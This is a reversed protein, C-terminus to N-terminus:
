AEQRFTEKEQELAALESKQPHETSSMKLKNKMSQILKDKEDLSAKVGKPGESELRKVQTQWARSSSKEEKLQGDLKLAHTTLRSVRLSLSLYDSYLM